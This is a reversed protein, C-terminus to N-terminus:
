HLATAVSGWMTNVKTGLSAVIAVLAMAVGTAILAYEIATAGRQAAIFRRVASPILHRM